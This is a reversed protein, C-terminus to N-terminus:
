QLIVVDSPKVSVSLQQGHQISRFDRRTLQRVSILSGDKLRLRIDIVGGTLTTDEVVGQVGNRAFGDGTDVTFSEPRIMIKASAAKTDTPVGEVVLGGATSIKASGGDAELSADIINSEGLFDAAFITRPRFYLDDPTGLQEIRGGNMLCIRDSLVLAESQDHTVYLLTVGLTKHIRKIELQLQDRLKKDLAGLPEDMLILDPDYVLCRAIAIRQQQGGSLEKPKREGYGALSVVELVEDVRKRIDAESRKRVRLPFAINEFVTMHPMLAYNQFVMGLERRNPPLKTVDRNGIWIAGCTAGISGSILNLITTKGSGSPGLLTVFEGKQIELSTPWLARVAGYLKEVEDLRVMTETM